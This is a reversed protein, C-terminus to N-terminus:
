QPVRVGREAGVCVARGSRLGSMAAAAAAAAKVIGMGDRGGYGCDTADVVLM